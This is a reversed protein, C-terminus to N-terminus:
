KIIRLRIIQDQLITSNYELQGEKALFAQGNQEPVISWYIPYRVITGVTEDSIGPHKYYFLDITAGGRGFSIPHLRSFSIRITHKTGPPVEM